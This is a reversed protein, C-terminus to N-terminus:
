GDKSAGSPAWPCWFSSHKAGTERNQSRATSDYLVYLCSSGLFSREKCLNRSSRFRLAFWWSSAWEKSV